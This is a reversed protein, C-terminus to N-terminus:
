LNKQLKKRFEALDEPTGLVHVSNEDVIHTYLNLSSKNIIINYLPAIYEEKYNDFKYSAYCKKFLALSKFYYFGITGFESIRIKETIGTVKLDDGFKVFSWKDGEAKFAPVWGDGEIYEPKLHAPEVYTDINYIIIEENLDSIKDEAELATAAQGKTCYNIEKIIVKKIGLKNCKEQIFKTTHHSKRTVFIFRNDFFNKLSLLSWEFLSKNNVEIMHKPINFGVKKFRSGEGAMAIIINM